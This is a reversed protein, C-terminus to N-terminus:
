RDRYTRWRALLGPVALATAFLLGQMIVASAAPVKAFLQLADSGAVLAGVFLSIPLIVLPQHRALWAVLFGTLGYGLSITPQLRGQIASVEAIGAIGAIAGGVSMLAVVWFAYSLGFMEGVKRNGALIRIKQAWKGHNFFLHLGVALLVGVLLGLHIRTDPVAPLVAGQPFKMTAPWGQSAPDRWPGFVLASVLLVSVYNMLLTVITENVDLRARLMGPVWGYLGGGIAAAILMLPILVVGPLEPALLVLGTGLIAGAHLQGEAGVSILGLRGPVAVALACLLIPTMKAFTQSISYADGLAYVVLSSLMEFPPKGLAAFFAAALALFCAATLVSALLPFRMVTSM